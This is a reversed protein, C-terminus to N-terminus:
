MGQSTSTSSGDGRVTNYKTVLSIDYDALRPVQCIRSDLDNGGVTLGNSTDIVELPVFATM